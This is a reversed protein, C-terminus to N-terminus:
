PNIDHNKFLRCAALAISADDGTTGRTFKDSYFMRTLTRRKLKSQRLEHLWSSVQSSVLLGDNTVLRDAAGDSMAAFGSLHHSPYIGIQVDSPQLHEDIFTTQNAFEGKGVKGLTTLRSRLEAGTKHLEEAILAGDGIKIWLLREKGRVAMLLTCRFDRQPRRHEAALDDLIGKAHKVFLLGQARVSEENAVEPEDLLQALSKELTNALRGLGSVVAQSGTESVASSGAGDAVIVIPRPSKTAWVSDQCPLPPHADRHSLGAVAEYLTEWDQSFDCFLNYPLDKDETPTEAMADRGPNRSEDPTANHPATEPDALRTTQNAEEQTGQESHALSSVQAATYPEPTTTEPDPINTTNLNKDEPTATNSNASKDRNFSLRFIFM